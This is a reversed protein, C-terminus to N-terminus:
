SVLFWFDIAGTGSFSVVTLFDFKILLFNPHANNFGKFGILREASM